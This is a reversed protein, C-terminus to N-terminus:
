ELRVGWESTESGESKDSGWCIHWGGGQVTRLPPHVTASFKKTKTAVDTQQPTKDSKKGGRTIDVRVAWRTFFISRTTGRTPDLNEQTCSIQWWITRPPNTSRKTKQRCWSVLTSVGSSFSFVQQRNHNKHPLNVCLRASNHECRHQRWSSNLIQSLSFQVVIVSICTKAVLDMPRSAVLSIKQFALVAMRTLYPWLLLIRTLQVARVVPESTAPTCRARWTKGKEVFLARLFFFSEWKVPFNVITPNKEM